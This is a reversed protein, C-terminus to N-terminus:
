FFKVCFRPTNNDRWVSNRRGVVLCNGFWHGTWRRCHCPIIASPFVGATRRYGVRVTLSSRRLARWTRTTTPGEGIGHGFIFRKLSRVIGGIIFLRGVHLSPLGGYIMREFEFTLHKAPLSLRLSMVIFAIVNQRCRCVPAVM